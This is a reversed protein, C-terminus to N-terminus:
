EVWVSWRGKEDWWAPRIISVRFVCGNGGDGADRYCAEDVEAWCQKAYEVAGKILGMTYPCGPHPTPSEWEMGYVEAFFTKSLGGGRGMEAVKVVIGRKRVVGTIAERVGVGRLGLEEALLRGDRAGLWSLARWAERGVGSGAMREMAKMVLIPPTPRM